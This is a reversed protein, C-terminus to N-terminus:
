DEGNIYAEVGSAIYAEAAATLEGDADTMEMEFAGERLDLAKQDIEIQTRTTQM